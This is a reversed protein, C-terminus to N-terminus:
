YPTPQAGFTAQDAGGTAASSRLGESSRVPGMVGGQTKMEPQSVAACDTTPLGWELRTAYSAGSKCEIASQPKAPNEAAQAAMPLAAFASFAVLAGSVSKLLLHQNM